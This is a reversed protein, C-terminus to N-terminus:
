SLCKNINLLKKLNGMM